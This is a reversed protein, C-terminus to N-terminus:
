LDNKKIFMKVIYRILSSLTHGKKKAEDSLKKIDTEDLKTQITKKVSKVKYSRTNRQEEQTIWCCNEPCYNGNSDEREITTTRHLSKHELYSDYMDDRFNLFDMWRDCVIIGRGGYYKYKKDKEYFCRAKINGWTKYFLTKSLGHKMKRKKLKTKEM